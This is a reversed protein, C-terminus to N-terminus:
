ALDDNISRKPNPDKPRTLFSGLVLIAFNSVGAGLVGFANVTWFMSCIALTAIILLSAWIFYYAREANVPNKRDGLMIALITLGIGVITAAGAFIAREVLDFDRYCDVFLYLITYVVPLSVCFTILLSKQGESILKILSTFVDKM